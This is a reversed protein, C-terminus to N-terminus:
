SLFRNRIEHACRRAECVQQPVVAVLADESVTQVIASDVLHRMEQVVRGNSDRPRLRLLGVSSGSTIAEFVMSVSDETVWVRGAKRLQEPLWDQDLEDPPRCQIGPLRELLLTIFDEPTRRSTVVTWSQPHHELLRAIQDIIGASDWIFHRSEGGVLILGCEPDHERGPEIQNLVGLTEIVNNAPAVHDHRPALCLDFWSVPLSPKMLVISRARHFLAGLCLAPHTTSGAGIILEAKPRASLMTWLGRLRGQVRLWHVDMDVLRSLERVLGKLQNEHGPKGDALIWVVPKRKSAPGDSM